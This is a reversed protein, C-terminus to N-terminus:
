TSEKQSLKAMFACSEAAFNFFFIVLPVCLASFALSTIAMQAFKSLGCSGVVYVSGSVAGALFLFGLAISVPLLALILLVIHTSIRRRVAQLRSFVLDINCESRLAVSPTIWFLAAINIGALVIFSLVLLFPVFSLLIGMVIGLFPIEKLLYFLSVVTWLSVYALPIPAILYLSSVILNWSSKSLTRLSFPSNNVEKYYCRVLIIGLAFLLTTVVFVPFFSLSLRAYGGAGESLSRFLSIFIGCFAVFPFAFFFKKKSFTFIFSRHFMRDIDAWSM